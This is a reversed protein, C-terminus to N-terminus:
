SYGFPYSGFPHKKIARKSIIPNKTDLPKNKDVRNKIKHVKNTPNKIERARSKANLVKNNVAPYNQTGPVENKFKFTIQVAKINNFKLWFVHGLPRGCPYRINWQKACDRLELEVSGRNGYEAMRPSHKTATCHPAVLRVTNGSHPDDVTRIALGCQTWVTHTAECHPHDIRVTNVSHTVLCPSCTRLWTTPRAAYM